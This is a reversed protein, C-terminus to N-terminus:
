LKAQLIRVNPLSKVSPSEFNACQMVKQKKPKCFKYMAGSKAKQSVFNTCQKVKQKKPKCFKCMAGSKSKQAYLIQM